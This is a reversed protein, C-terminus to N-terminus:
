KYLQFIIIVKRGRRPTLFALVTKLYLIQFFHGIFYKFLSRQLDVYEFVTTSDQIDPGFLLKKNTKITICNEIYFM